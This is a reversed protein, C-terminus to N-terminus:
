RGREEHRKRGESSAPVATGIVWAGHVHAGLRSLSFHPLFGTSLPSIPFLLPFRKRNASEPKARNGNREGGGVEALHRFRRRWSGLGGIQLAQVRRLALSNQGGFAWDQHKGAGAGALRRRQRGPERMENGGAPCPRALDEGDGEGVLRRALHALSDGCQGASREFPHGPEAGKVRDGRAHKSAVRLKDAEVGVEGDEVGVVLQPDELLQDLGRVEILLAPGRALEGPEDIPPLVAAPTRRLDIGAFGFGEGSPVDQPSLGRNKWNDIMGALARAPWRKEDINAADILQKMVRLQDDTDLITFNSKLGVLEAHARLMRAAVSHFTGLWPMGEIAGGSIKAVREKMERAAKNTFTVSLIQSPWAKRTAILHALRATLAATKGTGAGALVLVPGETTLVAERQPPNLGTLYAPEPSLVPSEPVSGLYASPFPVAVSARPEPHNRSNNGIDM